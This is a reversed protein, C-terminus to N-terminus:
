ENKGDAKAPWLDYQAYRQRNPENDYFVIITKEEIIRAQLKKAILFIKLAQQFSVDKLEITLRESDRIADDYVINLDLQKGVSSIAAKLSTDKLNITQAMTTLTLEQTELPSQAFASISCSFLLFAIAGMTKLTGRVFNYNIM